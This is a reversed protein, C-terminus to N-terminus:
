WALIDESFHNSISIVLCFGVYHTSNAVSPSSGRIWCEATFSGSFCLHKPAGLNIHPFNGSGQHNPIFDILKPNEQFPRLKLDVHHCCVM